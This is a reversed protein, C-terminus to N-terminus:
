VGHPAGKRYVTVDGDVLLQCALRAGDPRDTNALTEKEQEEVPSCNEAGTRIEVFCEGCLCQMHCFTPWDYGLRDAAEMLAEGPEVEIDLGAPEVRVTGGDHDLRGEVNSTAQM